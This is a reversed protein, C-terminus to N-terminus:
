LAEIHWDIKALGRRMRAETAEVTAELDGAFLAHRGVFGRLRGTVTVGLDALVGLDLREGGNAGTLPLSLSRQADREHPVDDLTQDLHGTLAFWHWIDKGRYRRPMRAHRGVAITVDRGARRLEAALQQASPGAGVVLVGGPPLLEPSR